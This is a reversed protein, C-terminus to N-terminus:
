PPHGGWHKGRLKARNRGEATRTRILNREVRRPRRTGGADLARHQHRHRGMAGGTINVARRVPVANDVRLARRSACLRM